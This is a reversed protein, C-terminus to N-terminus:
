IEVEDLNDFLANIEDDSYSHTTFTQRQKKSYDTSAFEPKFEKAKELTDIGKEHWSSLIKHMYSIANTKGLSLEAAYLIINLDFSWNNAWIKYNDRDWSTIRRHLGCADLIAKIDGDTAVVETIYQDIAKEDVLGLKFFKQLVANMGELTRINKKFCYNAILILTDNSYGMRLWEAIYVEVVQILNEYYVGISKSVEKALGYMNDKEKEYAEIETYSLLKLEYYKTLLKDLKLFGGKKNQSKAVLLIDDLLFGLEKTWKIFMNREEFTATRRLGLMKLVELINGSSREHDLLKEEVASTTRIGEYAWNKAITLIYKYGVTAGKLSTAYKIIMLLAEPEINFSEILEYYEAYETPTIMRGIILEQLKLNFTTYKEKKFKKLKGFNEKIPLYRVEFPDTDIIQVLGQDQWYLFSSEIDEISLNLVKSFSELSNDSSTAHSCKYLGYLFVKVCADPAFPLYDNFFSNDINTASDIVFQNSFKCFNM